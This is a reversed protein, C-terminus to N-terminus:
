PFTLLVLERAHSSFRMAGRFWASDRARMAYEDSSEFKDSPGRM